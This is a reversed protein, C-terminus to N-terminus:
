AGRSIVVIKKTTPEDDENVRLRFPELHHRHGSREGVLLLQAYYSWIAPRQGGKIIVSRRRERARAETTPREDKEVRANKQGGLPKKRRRHEM